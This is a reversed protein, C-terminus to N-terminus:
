TVGPELGDAVAEACRYALQQARRFGDLEDPAPPMPRVAPSTPAV